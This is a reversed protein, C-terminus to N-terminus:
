KWYINAHTTVAGKQEGTSGSTFNLYATDDLSIDIKPESAPSKLLSNWCIYKSDSGDTVAISADAPLTDGELLSLFREGTFILGPNMSLFLKKLQEKTLTYNVPAPIAGIKTSALFAIILQPERQLMLAVRDGKKVGLGSMANAVRNVQDNLERYNLRAGKYVLALKDPNNVKNRELM